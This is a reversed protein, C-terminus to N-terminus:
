PKPEQTLAARAKDDAKHIEDALLLGDRGIRMLAKMAKPAVTRMGNLAEELVAVRAALADREARPCDMTLIMWMADVTAIDAERATDYARRLDPLSVEFRRTDTM